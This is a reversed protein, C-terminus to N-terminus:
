PHPHCFCTASPQEVCFAAQWEKDSPISAQPGGDATGPVELGHWHVTTTEALQNAFRVRVAQGHRARLTPGLLNGNYG